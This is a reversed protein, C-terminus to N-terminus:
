ELANAFSRWSFISNPLSWVENGCVALPRNVLTNCPVEQCPFPRGKTGRCHAATADQILILNVLVATLSLFQM